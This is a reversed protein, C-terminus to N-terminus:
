YGDTACNRRNPIEEGGTGHIEKSEERVGRGEIEERGGREERTFYVRKKVRMLM